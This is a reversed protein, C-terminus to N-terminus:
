TCWNGCTYNEDWNEVTEEDRQGSRWLERNNGIEKTDQRNGIGYGMIKYQENKEDKM